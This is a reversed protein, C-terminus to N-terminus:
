LDAIFRDVAEENEKEAKKRAEEIEKNVKATAKEVKKLIESAEKVIMEIEKKTVARPLRKSAQCWASIRMPDDEPSSDQVGVSWKYPKAIKETVNLLFTPYEIGGGATIIWGSIIDEPLVIYFYIEKREPIEMFNMRESVGYKEGLQNLLDRMRERKIMKRGGILVNGYVILRDFSQL